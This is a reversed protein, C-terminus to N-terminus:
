NNNKNKSKVFLLAAINFYPIFNKETIVEKKLNCQRAFDMRHLGSQFHGGGSVLHLGGKLHVGDVQYNFWLCTSSVDYFLIKILM